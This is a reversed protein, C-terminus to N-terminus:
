VLFYGRTLIQSRCAKSVCMILSRVKPFVDANDSGVPQKLSGDDFDLTTALVNVKFSSNDACFLQEQIYNVIQNRRKKGDARARQRQKGPTNKSNPNLAYMATPIYLMRIEIPDEKEGTAQQLSELLTTCKQEYYENEQEEQIPTNNEQQQKQLADMTELHNFAEINPGNCPSALVSEKLQNEAQRVHESLLSSLLGYKFFSQAQPNNIMGDGFSSILLGYKLWSSSGQQQKDDGIATTTASAITASDEPTAALAKCRSSTSATISTTSLWTRQVKGMSTSSSTIVHWAECGNNPFLLLPLVVLLQWWWCCLTKNIM